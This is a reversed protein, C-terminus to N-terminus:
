LNIRSLKGNMRELRASSDAVARSVHRHYDNMLRLYTKWHMGKPKEGPGYAIGPVWGMRARLKDAPGFANNDRQSQYALQHCHRCAFVSGGYLVAVRRGCGAGPCLWWVRQGGYHCATWALRVPYRMEQWEGGYRQSRYDLMVSDAAVKLNISAIVNGGRSWNWAFSQGPKLLSDRQLKRVDLTRRDSTTDKGGRRGSNYGGM